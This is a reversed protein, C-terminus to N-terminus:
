ESIVNQFIQDLKKTSCDNLKIEDIIQTMENVINDKFDRM